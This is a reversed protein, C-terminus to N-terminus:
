RAEDASQRDVHRKLQFAPPRDIRFDVLRCRTKTAQSNVLMPSSSSHILLKAPPIVSSITWIKSDRYHQESDFFECYITIDKLPYPTNNKIQFEAQVMHHAEETLHYNVLHVASLLPSAEVSPEPETVFLGRSSLANRFYGMATLLISGVLICLSFNAATTKKM